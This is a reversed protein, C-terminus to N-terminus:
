LDYLKSLVLCGISSSLIGYDGSWIFLGLLGLAIVLFLGSIITEFHTM